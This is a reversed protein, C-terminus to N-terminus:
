TELLVPHTDSEVPQGLPVRAPDDNPWLIAALGADTAVLKLTGVPSDVNKSFWTKM